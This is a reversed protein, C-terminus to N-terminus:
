ANMDKAAMSAIETSSYSPRPRASRSGAGAAFARRCNSVTSSTGAGNWSTGLSFSPRPVPDDGALNVIGLANRTIIAGGRRTRGVTTRIARLGKIQLRIVVTAVPM